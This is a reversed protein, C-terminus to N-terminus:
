VKFCLMCRDTFCLEAAGGLCTLQPSLTISTQCGSCGPSLLYPVGCGTKSCANSNGLRPLQQVSGTQLEAIFMVLTAGVSGQICSDLQAGSWGAILGADRGM